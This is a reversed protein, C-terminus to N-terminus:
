PTTKRIFSTSRLPKYPVQAALVKTDFSGPVMGIEGDPMVISRIEPKSKLKGPVLNRIQNEGFGSNANSNERFQIESM